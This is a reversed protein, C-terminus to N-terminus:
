KKKLKNCMLIANEVTLNETYLFNAMTFSLSVTKSFFSQTCPLVNSVPKYNENSVKMLWKQFELLVGM